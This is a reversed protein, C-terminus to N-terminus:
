RRKRIVSQEPKFLNTKYIEFWIVAVFSIGTCLLLDMFTIHVLGFTSQVAPVFHLVALFLVSILLVWPALRNKYHITKTFNQTFSRNTFTLFINSIILTTFVLTRTQNLSAGNTMSFHYLWLVGITIMLGQVISILLEDQEFLSITRKRPPLVMINEEVPEREFFVSCTPGM